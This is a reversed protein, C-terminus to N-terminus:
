SFNCMIKGLSLITPSHEKSIWTSASNITYWTTWERQSSPLAAVARGNARWCLGTSLSAGSGSFVRMRGVSNGQLVSEKKPNLRLAGGDSGNMPFTKGCFVLYSSGGRGVDRFACILTCLFYANM